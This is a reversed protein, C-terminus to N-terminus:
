KTNLAAYTVGAAALFSVGAIAYVWIPTEGRLELEAGPGPGSALLDAQAAPTFDITPTRTVSPGSVRELSALYGELKRSIIVARRDPTPRTAAASGPDIASVVASVAAETRPGWAGDEALAAITSRTSSIWANVGRQLWRTSVVISQPVGPLESRASDLGLRAM